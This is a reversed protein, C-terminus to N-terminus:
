SAHRTPRPKKQFEVPDPTDVAATPTRCPVRWILTLLRRKNQRGKLKLHTSTQPRGADVRTARGADEAKTQAIRWSCMMNNGMNAAFTAFSM